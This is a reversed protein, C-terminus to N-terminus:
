RVGFLRRADTGLGHKQFINSLFMPANGGYIRFELSMKVSDAAFASTSSALAAAAAGGMVQRRSIANLGAM